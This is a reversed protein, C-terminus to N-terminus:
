SHAAAAASSSRTAGAAATAPIQEGSRYQGTLLARHGPGPRPGDAALGARAAVALAPPILGALQQHARRAPVPHGAQRQDGLLHRIRAATYARTDVVRWAWACVMSCCSSRSRAYIPLADHLSLTYIETTATDNFFFCLCFAVMLFCTM